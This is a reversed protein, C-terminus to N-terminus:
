EESIAQLIKIFSDIEKESALNYLAQHRLEAVRMLKPEIERAIDTLWVRICKYSVNETRVLGKKALGSVTRCVSSKDKGIMEAIDCQQLGDQYILARIVMNESGTITLGEDKLASELKSIMKQFAMGVLCGVYPMDYTKKNGMYKM